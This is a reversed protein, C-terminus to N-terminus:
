FHLSQVPTDLQLWRQAAAQLTTTQGTSLLQVQGTGPAVVDAPLAAAELRLRTQRAVPAGTDILVVDPGILARLAESAFPYHTCGLVLTDIEGPNLGFQGVVETHRACAAIIETANQADDERTLSHEIADALGDCPQLVFEAPDSQNALTDLLRKFRASALTSRTAMVGIRRTQSLAAAPKLAPEVGIIILGPHEARLQDIAAATATNCAIVLAQINQAVLHASLARSRALVHAHDREGYPAHGSDAIYIFNDHPLEHRLAQLVSLGGIGSDFVGIHGGRDSM